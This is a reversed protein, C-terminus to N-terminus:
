DTKAYDATRTAQGAGVNCPAPRRHNDLPALERRRAVSDAVVAMHRLDDVGLGGRLHGHGSCLAASPAAVSRRGSVVAAPKGSDCSEYGIGPVRTQCVLGASQRAGAAESIEPVKAVQNDVQYSDFGNRVFRYGGGLNGCVSRGTRSGSASARQGFANGRVIHGWRRVPLNWLLCLSCSRISNRSPSHLSVYSM